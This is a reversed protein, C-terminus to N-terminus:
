VDSRPSIFQTPLLFAKETIDLLRIKLFSCNCILYTVWHEVGKSCHNSWWWFIKSKYLNPWSQILLCLVLALNCLNWCISWLFFDFLAGFNLYDIFHVSKPVPNLISRSVRNIKCIIYNKSMKKLMLFIIINLYFNLVLSQSMM